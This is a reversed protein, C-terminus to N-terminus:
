RGGILARERFTDRVRDKVARKYRRKRQARSRHDRKVSTIPKGPMPVPLHYMNRHLPSGGVSKWFEDYAKFLNEFKASERPAVQTTAGIGVMHELDLAEAIGEAATLLLAAPSIDCCDKTAQRIRELGKGKGQVRAVYMADPAALGAIAGPGITFSLTYIDDGGVEFTLTLDGESYPTRPFSLWIRHAEEGEDLSCLELRRDIIQAYFREGVRDKLFAYHHILMAAREKRSLDTALYDRLFKFMVRPEVRLVPRLEPSSFLQAVELSTRPNLALWASKSLRVLGNRLREGVVPRLIASKAMVASM